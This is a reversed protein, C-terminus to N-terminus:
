KRVNAMITIESLATGDVMLVFKYTGEEPFIFGNTNAAFAFKGNVAPIKIDSDVRVIERDKEVHKAIVSLKKVGADEPTNELKVAFAIPIKMPYSDGVIVDYTNVITLSGNKNFAGESITFLAVKM